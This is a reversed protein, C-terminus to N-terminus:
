RRDRLFEESLSEGRLVVPEFDPIETGPQTPVIVYPVDRLAQYLKEADNTEESREIREMVERATAADLRAVWQQLRQSAEAEPPPPPASPGSTPPRPDDFFRLYGRKPKDAYGQEILLGGLYVAPNMKTPLNKQIYDGLSGEGPDDFKSGIRVTRGRFHDLLNTLFEAPFRVSTRHTGMWIRLGSEVAGEVEFVGRGGATICTRRSQIM